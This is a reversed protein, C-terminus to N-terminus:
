LLAGDRWRSPRPARADTDRVSGLEGEMRGGQVGREGLERHHTSWSHPVRQASGSARFFNGLTWRPTRPAAALEPVVLVGRACARGGQWAGAPAILMGASRLAVEGDGIEAGRLSRAAIRARVAILAGTDLSM